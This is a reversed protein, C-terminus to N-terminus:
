NPFLNPIGYAACMLLRAHRRGPLPGGGARHGLEAPRKLLAPQAPATQLWARQSGWLIQLGSRAPSFSAGFGRGHAFLLMAALDLPLGSTSPLEWFPLLRACTQRGVVATLDGMWFAASGADWFLLSSGQSAHIEAGSTSRACSPLRVGRPGGSPNM